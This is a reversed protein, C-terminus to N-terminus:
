GGFARATGASSDLPGEVHPATGGVPAISLAEPPATTLGQSVAAELALSAPPLSPDAIRRLLRLTAEAGLRAFPQVATTLRVDALTAFSAGDFGAISLQEPVRWGREVAHRHASVAVLDNIGVWATVAPSVSSVLDLVNRFGERLAGAHSASDALTAEELPEGCHVILRADLPVGQEAHARRFGAIRAEISASLPSRRHLLLATRRHGLELVHRTLRVMAAEHDVEVTDAALGPVSRDVLVYPVGAADLAAFGVTHGPYQYSRVLVGACGGESLERLIASEREADGRSSALLLHYGAAECAAQIAHLFLPEQRRVDGAVLAIARAGNRDNKGPARAGRPAIFSGKGQVRVAGGERMLEDLARRATGRSVGYRAALEHESPLRTGAAESGARARLDELILRFGTASEGPPLM